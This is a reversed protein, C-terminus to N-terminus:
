SNHFTFTFDNLLQTDDGQVSLKCFNGMIGSKKTRIKKITRYESM